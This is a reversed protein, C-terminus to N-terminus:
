KAPNLGLASIMSKNVSEVAYTSEARARAAAGERRIREPDRAYELLTAALHQTDRPRVLTGYVGAQVVERSGPVDAVVVTRGTALAELGSRPVGERYYSPLVFVSALRLLPRVDSVQGHLIIDGRAAAAKLLEEDAMEPNIDSSGALHFEAEPISERVVRAAEVLEHVGKSRLLRGVFLFRPPWTPAESPTYHTLDVGSGYVRVARAPDLIHAKVLDEVDDPNQLIVKDCLQFARRFLLSQITRVAWRRPSPSGGRIFAYGLGALMVAIHKVGADAAAFVGFSAPKAGYGFYM